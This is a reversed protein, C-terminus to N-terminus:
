PVRTASCCHEGSRFETPRPASSGSCRRSSTRARPMLTRDLRADRRTCRTGPAAVRVATPLRLPGRFGDRTGEACRVGRTSDAFHMAGPGPDLWPRVGRGDRARRRGPRSAIARSSGADRGHSGSRPIANRMSARRSSGGDTASMHPKRPRRSALEETGPSRMHRRADSEVNVPHAEGAAAGVSDQTSAPALYASGITCKSPVCRALRPAVARDGVSRVTGHSQWRSAEWPPRM